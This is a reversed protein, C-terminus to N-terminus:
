KPYYGPLANFAQTDAQKQKQAEDYSPPAYPPASPASSIPSRFHKQDEQGYHAQNAAAHQQPASNVTNTQVYTYSHHVEARYNRNSTM